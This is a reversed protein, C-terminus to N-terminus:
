LRLDLGARAAAPVPPAAATDAISIVPVGAPGSFPKQQRQEQQPGFQFSVSGYGIARFEQALAEINRRFLDLTEPRDAQVLVVIDGNSGGLRLRVAGLEEPSLQLEVQGDGRMSLAQAVQEVVGRPLVYHPGPKQEALGTVQPLRENLFPSLPEPDPVPGVPDAQAQLLNPMPPLADQPNRTEPATMPSAAPPTAAPSVQPVADRPARQAQSLVQPSVTEAPREVPTSISTPVNPSKESRRAAEALIPTLLPTDSGSRSASRPLSTAILSVMVAVTDDPAAEPAPAGVPDTHPADEAQSESARGEPDPPPRSPVDGAAPPAPAVPPDSEPTAALAPEAMEERDETPRDPLEKEENAPAPPPAVPEGLQSLLTSFVIDLGGTGRIGAEAEAPGPPSTTVPGSPLAAPLPLFSPIM